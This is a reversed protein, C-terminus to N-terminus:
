GFLVLLVSILFGLIAYTEVLVTLTIARGLSEPRKAILAIGSAAVEGQKIGSFLGAFAVPLSAMLYYGGQATTLAETAAGGLVGANVLILFGIAFGYIGQTMPLATLAFTKGFKGPDESLVGAAARGALNVGKASGIGALFTALAAGLFALNNGTYITAFFDGMTMGM